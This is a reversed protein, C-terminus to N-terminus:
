GAATVPAAERGGYVAFDRARVLVLALAAGAFAVVGAVLLIDNMASVFSAHVAVVAQGRHAAPVRGVVQQAAGGAVARAAAAAHGAVPTGALKPALYSQIQSQFISGLVAIGTAIGVQRFTNNIGSAMGSRRPPVVGIATSALAPNVMGVGAGAVLFGALLATWGSAASLDRMLMLGGGTLALGLSLLVRAPVRELLKGALAAVVFSVATFPLFRLGTQLPSFGLITQIYLTLYLFMAFMSSSVTFAVIAAGDFTPNRFLAVDFMSGTQVVQSILFLVLLAASAALLAIV